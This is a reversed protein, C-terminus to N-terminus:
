SKSNRKLWLSNHIHVQLSRVYRKPFGLDDVLDLETNRALQCGAM